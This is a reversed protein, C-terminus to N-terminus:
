FNLNVGFTYTTMPRDTGPLWDPDYGHKNAAWVIGLDRVQAFVRINRFKTKDVLSKPLSYDLMMEKCEIYSSSEVLGSLYPVYRDWLYEQTENANPFPPIDTRGAFVDSVYQNVVTKNSGVYSTAYNFTNDRYVGGLKGIFLVSFSIDKYRFSNYWGLTHPPTATGEYNLFQKGQGSNYLAASNMTTPVGNPGAVQPVGNITGLYTFSYVPNVPKGQVYANPINLMQNAYLAPYYLNNIVNKNYAYNFTTSYFVPIGPIKLNTGLEVEIGKNTIGANNFKQSTTGTAGALAVTGTIDTGVKNYVDIKGSLKGKFLIFDTGINTTTTKEWRLTPNGNDSISATITGTNVNPATSVSLLTNTSTSREVNGNRGYTVRLNLRDIFTIQSAFSEEKINWLGGVSWLPEWRLSPISTIFNSADSRISGSITYKRDYTYSANGYYSVYRNLNYGLTTAGGDLTANAGTVTKFQDVSSGYGYLPVTSQLKDPYYGYEWPNSRTDTRYQSVEMGAIANISSKTGFDRTFNLQNRFVYSATNVANVLVTPNTPDLAQGQDIGGKPLFVRGVTKTTNNYELNTNVMNRVYYTDDSYYDDYDTKGREYQLKTDFSLGPALKINFGTQIRANYDQSTLDRGRVERLLNYNWDSYPFSSLPLSSLVARNKGNLNVSYNGNPDLLTEYPSLQQLEALTAGSAEQKKYQLYLGFNFTLFKAIKYENNFNMAYKNYGSGQYRTKNDEFLLSAYSKSRDTSAAFSVNYQSLVARRLLLDSIQQHNNIKSLSDLGSNMAATSIKGNKNAYLLEQALTLSNSLDTPFAGTYQNGGLLWNNNFALKEYKVQNASSATPLLQNLDTLASIRTFVNADITLGGGTKARKTAIVVVGNASRAGWISAAAADKLVTVSEIDNPNITSFDSTALPFGDVVVLPNRDAYLSTNGRILFSVSGDANEKGQMGAVMGQLATSLNSVPRKSLVDQGVQDFSGPAREKLLSQYGTSVMVEKLSENAVILSINGLNARVAVKRTRYGLFSIVLTDREDVDNLSFEGNVNTITVQNGTQLKISAGVLGQGAYDVVRGKINIEKFYDILKDLVSKEKASILITKNEITYTLSKNELVKDLVDKLPTNKFDANIFGKNTINDVSLLFDYGTQKKIEKFLQELSINNRKLTIEQAFSTASVRTILLLLLISTLKLNMILRKKFLRNIGMSHPPNARTIKQCYYNPGSLCQTFTEYM